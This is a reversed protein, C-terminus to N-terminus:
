VRRLRSRALVGEPAALLVVILFLFTIVGSFRTSWYGSVFSVVTGLGLGGVIAGRVWDLGGLVAAIFGTLTAQWGLNVSIQGFFSAFLAGALGGIAGAIAYSTALTRTVPLGVSRALVADDAVAKMRTGTAGWRLLSWLVATVLVSAAVLWWGAPPLKYGGFLNVEGGAFASPFAEFGEPNIHIAVTRVILAVGLAPLFGVGAVGGRRHRAVPGYILLYAVVGIGAAVLVDVLVAASRLDTVHLTGLAVYTALMLSDGHALNLDGSTRLVLAMGSAFLAYLLGLTLSSVCVTLFLEM